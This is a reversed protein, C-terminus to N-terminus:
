RPPAATQERADEAEILSHFVTQGTRLTRRLYPLCTRCGDGAGCREALQELSLGDRQAEDRLSAFTRNACVCRDVRIV